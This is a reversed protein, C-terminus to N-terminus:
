GGGNLNSLQHREVIATSAIGSRIASALPNEENKWQAQSDTQRPFHLPICLRLTRSAPANILGAIVPVFYVWPM